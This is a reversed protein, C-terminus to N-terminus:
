ANKAEWGNVWDYLAAMESRTYETINGRKGIPPFLSTRQTTLEPGTYSDPEIQVREEMEPLVSLDRKEDSRAIAREYASWAREVEDHKRM